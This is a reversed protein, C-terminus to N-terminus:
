FDRELVAARKFVLIGSMHRVSQEVMLDIRAEVNTGLDIPLRLTQPEHNVVEDPNPAILKAYLATTTGLVETGQLLFEYGSTPVTVTALAEYSAALDGVRKAVLTALLPPGDYTLLDQANGAVFTIELGATMQFFEVSRAPPPVWFLGQAYLTAGVFDPAFLDLPLAFAGTADFAGPLTVLPDVLLTTGQPLTVSTPALGLAIVALADQYGGTLKLQPGQLDTTTVALAVAVPDPYGTAPGYTATKTRMPVPTQAAIAGLAILPLFVHAHKM